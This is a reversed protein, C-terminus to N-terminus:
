PEPPASITLWKSEFGRPVVYRKEDTFLTYTRIRSLQGAPPLSIPAGRKPVGADSALEHRDPEAYLPTSVGGVEWTELRIAIDFRNPPMMWHQMKVIRGRVMAGAPILVEKSGRARVPKRVKQMVVDGAAAADTDIPAELELSIPLGEPLSVRAGAGAKKTAAGTAPDDGYYITSESQYERCGSYTTVVDNENTSVTVIHLRSRQPLLFDGTGIHIRAYDANTAVECAETEIPLQNGHVVLHRLDLSLPDIGVEGDYAIARWNRGAHVLYHSAALPMQYSYQYLKGSDALVEGNYAFSAGSKDFIDSLFTGLAGTGFPGRGVLDFISKADFQSAGAWSGIELGASVKVDLRLRDTLYLDLQYAHTDEEAHMQSCSSFPKSRIARRFYSRDVTQVCTYNPLRPRSDVIKDRAQALVQTPDPLSQASLVGAVALFFGGRM